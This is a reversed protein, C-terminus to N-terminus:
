RVRNRHHYYLGPQKILTPFNTIEWIYDPRRASTDGCEERMTM